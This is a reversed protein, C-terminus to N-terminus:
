TTRRAMLGSPESVSEEPTIESPIEEIYEEPANNKESLENKFERMAKATLRKKASEDIDELGSRYKINNSDGVLQIFEIIVPSILMGVDITHLGEMVGTLQMVNAVKTVPVGTKLVDIIQETSEDSSLRDIYYEIAGEVTPYTPPQQWPRSGIEATMSMGPIPASLNQIGEVKNRKEM